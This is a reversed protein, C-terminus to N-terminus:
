AKRKTDVIMHDNYAKPRETHSPSTNSKLERFGYMSCLRVPINFSVARRLRMEEGKGRGESEKGPGRSRERGLGLCLSRGDIVESENHSEPAPFNTWLIFGRECM